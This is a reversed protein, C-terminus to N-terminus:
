IKEKLVMDVIKDKLQQINQGCLASVEIENEFKKLTRMKDAKNVVVIINKGALLNEIEADQSSFKESSDLVFLVVDAKDLSLKSKEIGISEVVDVTKRIGATDVLNIKIGNHLFM